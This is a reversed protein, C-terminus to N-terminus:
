FLNFRYKINKRCLSCAGGFRGYGGLLIYPTRILCIYKSLDAEIIDWHWFILEIYGRLINRQNRNGKRRLLWTKQAEHMSIALNLHSFM